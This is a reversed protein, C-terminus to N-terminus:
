LLCWSMAAEFSCHFVRGSERDFGPFMPTAKLGTHTTYERRVDAQRSTSPFAENTKLLCQFAASVPFARCINLLNLTASMNCVQLM